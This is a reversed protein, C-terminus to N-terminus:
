FTVKLGVRVAGLKLRTTQDVLADISEDRWTGTAEREIRDLGLEFAARSNLRAEWAISLDRTLLEFQFSLVHGSAVEARVGGGCAFSRGSNELRAGVDAADARWEFSYASRALGVFYFLGESNVQRFAVCVRREYAEASASGAYPVSDGGFGARSTIDVDGAAHYSQASVVLTSSLRPSTSWTHSLEARPTVGSGSLTASQTPGDWEWYDIGLPGGMQALAGSAFALTGVLAVLGIGLRM